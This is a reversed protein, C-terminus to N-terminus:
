GNEWIGEERERRWTLTKKLKEQATNNKNEMTEKGTQKDSNEGKKVSQTKKMKPWRAQPM